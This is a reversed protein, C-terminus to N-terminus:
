WFQFNNMYFINKNFESFFFPRITLTELNSFFNSFQTNKEPIQHNQPRFNCNKVLQWFYLNKTRMFIIKKFIFAMTINQSIKGKLTLRVMHCRLRPTKVSCEIISACKYYEDKEQKSSFLYIFINKNKKTIQGNERKEKKWFFISGPSCFLDFSHFYNPEILLLYESRLM